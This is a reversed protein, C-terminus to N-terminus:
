SYHKRAWNYIEIDPECIQKVKELQKESVYQMYNKVPNRNSKLFSDKYYYLMPFSNVYNVSLFKRIDETFGINFYKQINEKSRLIKDHIDYHNSDLEYSFYNIYMRGSEVAHYTQLWDDLDLYIKAHDSRKNRAYFYQSFFRSVPDRIVTIFYWKSAFHQLIERQLSFHGECFDLKNKALFYFALKNRFYQAEEGFFRATQSSVKADINVSKSRRINKKLVYQKKLLNGLFTGGCKPVHVFCVKSPYLLEYFM